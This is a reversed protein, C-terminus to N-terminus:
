FRGRDHHMDSSVARRSFAIIVLVRVINTALLCSSTRSGELAGELQSPLPELASSDIDSDEWVWCGEWYVLQSQYSM